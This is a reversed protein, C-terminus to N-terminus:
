GVFRTNKLGKIRRQKRKTYKQTLKHEARSLRTNSCNVMKFLLPRRPRPYAYSHSFKKNSM